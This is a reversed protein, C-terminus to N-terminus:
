LGHNRGRCKGTELSLLVWILSWPLWLQYIHPVTSLVKHSDKPVLFKYTGAPIYPAVEAQIDYSSMKYKLSMQMLAISVNAFSDLYLPPFFNKFM